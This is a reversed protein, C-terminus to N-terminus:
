SQDRLDCLEDYLYELTSVHMSLNFEREIKDAAAQGLKMAYAPDTIVRGLADALTHVDGEPALLGTVDHDVAEPIGAHTYAVVPTRTLGAELVTTPLGETDGDPARVSPVCVVSSAAMRARVAEPPLAGEFRVEVGLADALGRLQQDLPGAGIISLSVEVGRERLLALARIADGFGKKHVLRGVCLIGARPTAAGTSEGSIGNYIVTVKSADAGAEIARGRIYDSVAVIRSADRFLLRLKHRYLAGRFGRRNPLATIDFGHLTVVLPLGSKVSFRRIQMADRAFHAHILRPKREKVIRRLKPTTGFFELARLYWNAEKPSKRLFIEEGTILGSHIQYGGVRLPHWRHLAAVQDRVFTESSPIWATKWILVSRSKDEM